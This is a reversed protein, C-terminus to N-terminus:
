GFKHICVEEYAKSPEPANAIQLRSKILVRTPVLLVGINERGHGVAVAVADYHVLSLTKCSIDTNFQDNNIRLPCSLYPFM